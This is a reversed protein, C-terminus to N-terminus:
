VIKIRHNARNRPHGSRGWIPISFISLPKTATANLMLINGNFYCFIIIVWTFILATGSDSLTYNLKHTKPEYENIMHTVLTFGYFVRKSFSDM